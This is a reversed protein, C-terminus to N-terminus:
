FDKWSYLIRYTPIHNCIINLKLENSIDKNQMEGDWYVLNVFKERVPVVKGRQRLLAKRMGNSCQLFIGEKSELRKNLQFQVGIQNQTVPKYRACAKGSFVVTTVVLMQGRTDRENM